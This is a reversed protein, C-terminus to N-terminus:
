QHEFGPIKELGGFNNEEDSDVKETGYEAESGEIM